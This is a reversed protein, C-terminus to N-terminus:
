LAEAALLVSLLAVLALLHSDALFPLELANIPSANRHLLYRIM